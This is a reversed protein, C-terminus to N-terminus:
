AADRQKTREAPRRRRPPAAGDSGGSVLLQIPIGWAAAIAQAADLSVRRSGNLIQSALSRSGVIDALGTQSRGMEAIAYRLIEAPSSARRPWRDKEYVEVLTALVDLRDNEPSGDPFSWLRDIEVLAARHDDDNRIPRIDMM